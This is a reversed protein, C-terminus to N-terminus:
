QPGARRSGIIMAFSLVPATQCMVGRHERPTEPHSCRAVGHSARRLRRVFVDAVGNTDGSVLGSAASSFVVGTDSLWGGTAGADVGVITRDAGSRLDRLHLASQVDAYLLQCGDPSVARGATREIEYM